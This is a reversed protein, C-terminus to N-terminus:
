RKARAGAAVVMFSGAPLSVGNVLVEVTHAGPNPKRTTHVALSVKAGLQSRARPELEIRNVKFVKTATTGRAKVFQVALDVLLSQRRSSNSRLAFTIAVSGGIAVVPPSFEVAELAVKASTGYGVLALAKAEGRKIAHRLAHEVLARREAPADVLWRECVEFCVAPHLKGLDNLNNAVSRRVVPAPDDALLELLEVIRHPNRDLWPVRMGWPLRIRTGESVLRRVHPNTDRAWRAFATWCREPDKAIFHRISFEATFRKTLEVQARLSLDFNDLGHEAVFITHPLYFFPAMGEGLNEDGTRPEGLSRLLIAIADPYSPPLHRALATAILKGRDLLERESLGKTADRQFARAPFAPHARAIDRALRAVLEGSFFNKLPEAM